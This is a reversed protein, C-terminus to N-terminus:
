APNITPPALLPRPSASRLAARGAPCSAPPAGAGQHTPPYKSDSTQKQRKTVADKLRYSQGTIAVLLAHPLFHDLIALATPVDHLLNGWKETPRNSTMIASHTEYRRM